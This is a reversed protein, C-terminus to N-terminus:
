NCRLEHKFLVLSIYNVSSLLYLILVFYFYYFYYDYRDNRCRRKVVVFTFVYRKVLDVIIYM